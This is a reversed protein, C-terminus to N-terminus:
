ATLSPIGSGKTSTRLFATIDQASEPRSFFYGQAFDCNLERLQALQAPTEIGEAVVKLHLSHALMVIIRVIEHTERSNEIRNIFSRDIKLTDVPLNQLRSLSSYGTGFDDIAVRVGINKLGQIVQGAVEENGMAITELIEVELCEPALGTERLIEAISTVLSEEAFQRPTINVSLTLPHRSPFENQWLILQRSAEYLLARNIPLILGTRDAVGIFDGPPVAGEPRPWRSLAEVGVISGDQASVIPQYHVELENREVAKRLTTELQLRKIASSHMETEFIECKSSKNRQARHMALEADRLMEHASSRTGTSLALGISFTIVIEQGDIAFPAALKKHLREAVRIGDSVDSIGELLITFEAGSLRALTDDGASSLPEDVDRARGISDFGRLSATLRRAAQILLQDGAIHGLTENIVRFEDIDIILVAINYGPRRQSLTIARHLRDLFLNRNPLNTLGDHLANHALRDEARKRDTIDRNVIVLKDVEGKSNLIAGGSSELFHLSGDKHFVRYELRQGKQTERTKRIAAFVIDRDEAPVKEILPSAKLEEQSYGLYKEYAPSTYLSRGELDVLTIMDGANDTILQFMQTRENLLKRTRYLQLHQYVSYIDFLIVLAALGRTWERLEYWSNDKSWYFGPLTLSVIGLTLALTVVVAFGWLWWERLETKHAKILLAESKELRAPSSQEPSM